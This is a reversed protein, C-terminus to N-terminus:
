GQPSKCGQVVQIVKISWSHHVIRSESLLLSLVVVKSKKEQTTQKVSGLICIFSFNLSLDFLRKDKHHNVDKLTQIM